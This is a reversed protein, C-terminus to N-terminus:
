LLLMECQFITECAQCATVFGHEHLRVNPMSMPITPDIDAHRYPSHSAFEQSLISMVVFMVEMKFGASWESNM